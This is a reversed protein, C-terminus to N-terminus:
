IHYFTSTPAPQNATQNGKPTSGTFINNLFNLPGGSASQAHASGGLLLAAALMVAATRKTALFGTRETM